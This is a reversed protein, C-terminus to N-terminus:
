EGMLSGAIALLVGAGGQGDGLYPHGQVDLKDQLVAGIGINVTVDVNWRDWCASSIISVTSGHLVVKHSFSRHAPDLFPTFKFFHTNYFVVKM